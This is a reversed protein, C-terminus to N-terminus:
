VLEIARGAAMCCCSRRSTAWGIGAGRAFPLV